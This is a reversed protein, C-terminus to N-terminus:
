LGGSKLNMLAKDEKPKFWDARYMWLLEPEPKNSWFRIEGIDALLLRYSRGEIQFPASADAVIPKLLLEANVSNGSAKALMEEMETAPIKLTSFNAIDKPVIAINEGYIAYSFFTKPTFESVNLMGQLTSYDDLNIKTHIVLPESVDLASFVQLLRNNERSVIADTDSKKADKLFPSKQAWALFDPQAQALKNFAMLLVEPHTPTYKKLLLTPTSSKDTPAASSAMAGSSMCILFFIAFLRLM